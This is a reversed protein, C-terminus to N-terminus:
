GNLCAIARVIQRNRLVLLLLQLLGFSYTEIMVAAPAVFHVRLVVLM